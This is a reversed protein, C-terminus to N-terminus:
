GGTLRARAAKARDIHKQSVFTGNATTVGGGGGDADDAAAGDAAADGAGAPGVAEEDGALFRKWQDPTALRKRDISGLSVGNDFRVWYRIWTLGTVMTVKGTSGEPVDRLAIRAVVKDGKRLHTSVTDTKAMSRCHHGTAAPPRWEPAAGPRADTRAQSRTTSSITERALCN